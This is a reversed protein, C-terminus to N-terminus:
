LYVKKSAGLGVYLLVVSLALLVLLSSIWSHSLDHLLGFLLPGSAALLYGVSQAMGSIQSAEASSKSRLSFFMMSLSFCCGGGIGLLIVSIVIIPLSTTLMIGLLGIFITGAGLWVLITQEALRGAIISLLFTAPVLFLQLLTLLWGTLEGDINKQLFLQPMWAILTYFILSQIGMFLSIKWALSSKILSKQKPTSVSLDMKTTSRVQPLWFVLALMSLVLWVRLSGQWGLHLKTALPLSIGSALAGCVNMTVSYIGTILGVKEPFDRKILSPILVNCHAISIGILITGFYLFFSGSFSRLFIGISLGILSLFLVKEIGIKRESIPALISCLAFALLPTTSIMGAAASNLGLDSSITGILPAVSTIPARLITAIFLIGLGLFFGKRTITRNKM